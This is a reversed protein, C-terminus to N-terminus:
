FFPGSFTQPPGKDSLKMNNIIKQIKNGLQESNTKKGDVHFTFNQVKPLSFDPV